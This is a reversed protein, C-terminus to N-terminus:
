SMVLEGNSFEYDEINFGKESLWDYWEGDNEDLEELGLAFTGHETVNHQKIIDGVTSELAEIMRKGEEPTEVEFYKFHNLLSSKYYVRLKKKM